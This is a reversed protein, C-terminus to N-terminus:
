MADWGRPIGANSRRHRSWSSGRTWWDTERPGGGEEPDTRHGMVVIDGPEAIPALGALDVLGEPGHGTVFALDM